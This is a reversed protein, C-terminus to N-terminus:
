TIMKLYIEDMMEASDSIVRLITKLIEKLETIRDVRLLTKKGINKISVIKKQRLYRYDLLFFNNTKKFNSEIFNFACCLRILLNEDTYYILDQIILKYRINIKAVIYKNNLSIIFNLYKTIINLHTKVEEKSYKMIYLLLLFFILGSDLSCFYPVSTAPPGAQERRAQQTTGTQALKPLCMCAMVYVVGEKKPTSNM